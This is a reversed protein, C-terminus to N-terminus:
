EGHVKTIHTGGLSSLFEAASIDTFKPDHAEIVAYFKDATVLKFRDWNFLQHNHRPLGNLVLIGLLAAFAYFLLTLEFMVPFFAPITMFNTPKGAVILPYLISSPIFQLAIATFFGTLGGIFVIVGLVSRRIGMADDMGHIPFPSFVDFKKYGADRIKEAAHYLETASDFEAVVGYVPQQIDGATEMDARTEM